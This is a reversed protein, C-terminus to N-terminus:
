TIVGNTRCTPHSSSYTKMTLGLYGWFALLILLLVVCVIQTINLKVLSKPLKFSGIAACPQLYPSFQLKSRIGKGLLLIQQPSHL